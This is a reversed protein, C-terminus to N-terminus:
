LRGNLHMLLEEAWPTQMPFYHALGYLKRPNSPDRLALGHLDNEPNLIREFTKPYQTDPLSSKYFQIYLRFLREWEEYDDKEIPTIRLGASESQTAMRRHQPASLLAPSFRSTSPCHSSIGRLDTEIFPVHLVFSFIPVLVNRM